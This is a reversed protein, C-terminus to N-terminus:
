RGDNGIELVAQSVLEDADISIDLKDSLQPFYQRALLLSMRSTEAEPLEFVFIGSTPLGPQITKTSLAGPVSDVRTSQRYSRGSAGVITAAQLPLTETSAAADVTVVLWVGSTSREVKRGFSEYSLVKAKRVQSVKGSFARGSVTEGAHGRTVIPGTLMAYSPTTEKLAILAVVSLAVLAAYVVARIM